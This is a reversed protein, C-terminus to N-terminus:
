RKGHPYGKNQTAADGVKVFSAATGKCLVSWGWDAPRVRAMPHVLGGTSGVLVGLHVHHGHPWSGAMIALGPM